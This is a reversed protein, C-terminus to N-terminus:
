ASAGAFDGLLNRNKVQKKEENKSFLIIKQCTKKEVIEICRSIELDCFACVPVM